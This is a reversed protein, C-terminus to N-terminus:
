GLQRRDSMRLGEVIYCETPIGYSPENMLRDFALTLVSDYYSKKFTNTHVHDLKIALTIWNDENFKWIKYDFDNNFVDINITNAEAKRENTDATTSSCEATGLRDECITHTITEFRMLIKMGTHLLDGCSYYAKIPERYHKCKIYGM